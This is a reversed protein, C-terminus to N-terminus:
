ITSSAANDCTIKRIDEAALGKFQEDIYKTSEPWIGDTAPLRVGVDTYGDDDPQERQAAEARDISSSRRRCPAALEVAEAEDPRPVPGRIRLGDPRACVPIWGIGSEGFSVRLNPYREFV